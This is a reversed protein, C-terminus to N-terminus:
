SGIRQMLEAYITWTHILSFLKTVYNSSFSLCVSCTPIISLIRVLQSLMERCDSHVTELQPEKSSLLAMQTLLQIHQRMQQALILRHDDNLDHDNQQEQHVTQNQYLQVEYHGHQDQHGQLETEHESQM